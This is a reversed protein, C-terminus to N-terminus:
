DGEGEVRKPQPKWMLIAAINIIPSVYFLIVRLLFFVDVGHFYIGYQKEIEENGMIDDYAFYVILFINSLVALSKVALWSRSKINQSLAFMNLIPFVLLFNLLNSFLLQCLLFLVNLGIAIRRLWIVAQKM